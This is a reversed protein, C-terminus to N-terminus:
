RPISAERSVRLKRPMLALLNLLMRSLNNFAHLYQIMTKTGQTLAMFEGVRDAWTSYLGWSPRLSSGGLLRLMQMFLTTITLGGYGQRDMYSILLM